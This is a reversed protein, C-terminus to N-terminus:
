ASKKRARRRPAGRTRSMPRKAATSRQELSKKLMSMLDVIKGSDEKAGTKKVAAVKGTRAKREVLQRLEDRYEDKFEAPNWKASMGEVLQEAMKIEGPTVKVGRTGDEPVNLEDVDRLEHAFRLLNLVLVQDRVTIAALYQRTRIVVKAIGVKGTRRLTERLLSYAKSAKKKPELYYPREYYVTEIDDGDVFEVIEISKTAKPNANRIEEETLVVYQGDDYEYGSVIDEWAVEKGTSKNYRRYGVPSLDRRDLMTASTESSKEASRLVVPIEVLGFGISGEWIAAM